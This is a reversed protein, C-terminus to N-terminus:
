LMIHRDMRSMHVERVQRHAILDWIARRKSEYERDQRRAISEEDMADNQGAEGREDELPDLTRRPSQEYDPEDSEDEYTDGPVNADQDDSEEQPTEPAQHGLERIKAMARVQALAAAEAAMKKERRKREAKTEKRALEDGETKISGSSHLKKRGRGRGKSVLLPLDLPKSAGPAHSGLYGEDQDDNQDTATESPTASELRKEQKAM